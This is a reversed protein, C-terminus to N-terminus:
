LSQTSTMTPPLHLCYLKKALSADRNAITPNSGKYNTIHQKEQWVQRPDSGMPHDEIRWKYAQKTDKIRRKLDAGAGDGSRLPTCVERAM